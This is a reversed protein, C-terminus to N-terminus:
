FTRNVRNVNTRVINGVNRGSGRRMYMIIGFAIFILVIVCILLYIIKQKYANLQVLSQFMQQRTFLIQQNTQNINVANNINNNTSNGSDILKQIEALFQSADQGVASKIQNYEQIFNNM